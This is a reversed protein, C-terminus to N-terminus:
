FAGQVMPIYSAKWSEDALEEWDTSLLLNPYVTKSILEKKTYWNVDIICEEALNTIDISGSVFSCLFWMKIRRYEPSNIDEVFLLRQPKVTLGTEEQVERIVTQHADEDNNVGGGPGVFFEEGQPNTCRALLVKNKYFTIASAAIRHQKM